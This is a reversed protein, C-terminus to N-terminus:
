FLIILPIISMYKWTFSYSKMIKKEIGITFKYINALWSLISKKKSKPLFMSLLTTMRQFTLPTWKKNKM